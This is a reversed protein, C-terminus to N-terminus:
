KMKENELQIRESLSVFNHETPLPSQLVYVKLLLREFPASCAQNLFIIIMRVIRRRCLIIVFNLKNSFKMCVQKITSKSSKQTEDSIVM